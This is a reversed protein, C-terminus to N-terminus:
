KRENFFCTILGPFHSPGLTPVYGKTVNVLSPSLLCSFGGEPRWGGVCFYEMIQRKKEQQTEFCHQLTFAGSAPESALKERVKEQGGTKQEMNKGSALWLFRFEEKELHDM